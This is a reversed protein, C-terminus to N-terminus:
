DAGTLKVVAICAVRGESTPAPVSLEAAYLGPNLTPDLRVSEVAETFSWTFADQAGVAVVGNGSQQQELSSWGDIAKSWIRWSHPNFRLETSSHNYLTLTIEHAPTGSDLSSTEPDPSLYVTATDPSVTHSCVAHDADTAFPPCPETTISSSTGLVGIHELCGSSGIATGAGLQAVFRRRNM